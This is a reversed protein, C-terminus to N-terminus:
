RAGSRGRGRSRRGSATGRSGATSGAGRVRAARRPGLRCANAGDTGGHKLFRTLGPQHRALEEARGAMFETVPKLIPDTANVTVKVSARSTDADDYGGGSVRPSITASAGAASAPDVAATVTAAQPEDWDDPRFTLSPPSVTAVGTDSSALTATGRVATPRVTAEYRVAHTRLAGVDSGGRSAAAGDLRCLSDPVLEGNDVEVDTERLGAGSVGEGFVFAVRFDGTVTESPDPGEIEPLPAPAVAPFDIPVETANGAADTVVVV